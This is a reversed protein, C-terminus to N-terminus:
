SKGTPYSGSLTGLQPTKGGSPSPTGSCNQFQMSTLISDEPPFLGGGGVGGVVVVVCAVEEVPAVVVVVVAAM